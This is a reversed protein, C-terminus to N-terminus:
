RCQVREPYGIVAIFLWHFSQSSCSHEYSHVLPRRGCSVVFPLVIRQLVSFKTGITTGPNEVPEELEPGLVDKADNGCSVDSSVEDLLLLVFHRYLRQPMPFCTAHDLLVGFCSSFLSLTGADPFGNRSKGSHNSDLAFSCVFMFKKAARCRYNAWTDLEFTKQQNSYAHM